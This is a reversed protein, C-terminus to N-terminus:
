GDTTLNPHDQALQGLGAGATIRQGLRAFNLAQQEWVVLEGDMM